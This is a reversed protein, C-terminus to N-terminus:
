GSTKKLIEQIAGLGYKALFWSDVLDSLPSGVIKSKPSLFSKLEPQKEKIFAAYMDEKLANGKGTAFKKLSSPTVSEILYGEQFLRYKLIGANEALDFVLGSSGFSYGEMYVFTDFPTCNALKMELLVLESLARFREMQARHSAGSDEFTPLTYLKINSPFAPNAALNMHAKTRAVSAMSVTRGASDVISVGPSTM